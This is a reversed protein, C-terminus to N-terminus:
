AMMDILLCDYAIALVSLAALIRTGKRGLLALLIFIPVIKIIVRTFSQWRAVCAWGYLDVDCPITLFAGICVVLLGSVSLLALWSLIARWRLLPQAGSSRLLRKWAFFLLFPPSILSFLSIAGTVTSLFRDM